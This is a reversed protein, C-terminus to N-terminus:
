QVAKKSDGPLKYIIDMIEQPSLGSGDMPSGITISVKKLLGPQWNIHVPVLSVNEINALVSVGHKPETEGRVTRKGEPFIFVTDRNTLAVESFELGYALNKIPKNPFTGFSRLLFSAIGNAFLERYGMFWVPSLKISTLLPMAGCIVFPDLKSQHNSALLYGRSEAIDKKSLYTKYDSGSVLLYLRVVFWLWTQNIRVILRMIGVLM